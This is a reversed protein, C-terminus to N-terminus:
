WKEYKDAKKKNKENIEQKTEHLLTLQNGTSKWICMTTDHQKDTKVSVDTYHRIYASSASASLNAVFGFDLFFDDDLAPFSFFGRNTVWFYQFQAHKM